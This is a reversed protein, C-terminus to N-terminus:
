CVSHTHNPANPYHLYMLQIKPTMFLTRWVFIGFFLTKKPGGPSLFVQLILQFRRPGTVRLIVNIIKKIIKKRNTQNQLENSSPGISESFQHWASLQFMNKNQEGLVWVFIYTENQSHFLKNCIKGSWPQENKKVREIKKEEKSCGYSTNPLMKKDNECANRRWYIRRTHCVNNWVCKFLASIETVFDMKGFCEYSKLWVLRISMFQLTYLWEPM